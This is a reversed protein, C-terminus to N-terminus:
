FFNRWLLMIGDDADIPILQCNFASQNEIVEYFDEMKHRFKIVDDFVMCGDAALLPVCLEFFEAYRKKMADVFIFDFQAPELTPLIDQAGGFRVEIIDQLGVAAINKQVQEYHPASHEIAIIKPQLEPCVCQNTGVPNKAMQFCSRRERCSKDASEASQERNETGQDRNELVADALWITSYGDACGLELIKKVSRSRCLWHLFQANKESIIPVNNKTSHVRLQDLFQRLLTDM